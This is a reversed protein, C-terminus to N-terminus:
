KGSKLVLDLSAQADKLSNQAGTRINADINQNNAVTSLSAIAKRFAEIAKDKYGASLLAAAWLNEADGRHQIKTMRETEDGEMPVKGFNSASAALEELARPFDGAHMLSLGLGYQADACKEVGPAGPLCDKKHLGLIRASVKVAEAPKKAAIYVPPFRQLVEEERRNLDPENYVMELASKYAQISEENKGMLKNRDGTILVDNLKRDAPSNLPSAVPPTNQAHLVGVGTLLVVYCLRMWKMIESQQCLRLIDFM